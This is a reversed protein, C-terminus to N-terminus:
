KKAPHLEMVKEAILDAILDDDDSYTYGFLGSHSPDHEEPKHAACIKHDSIELVHAIVDKLNLVAFRANSAVGFGKASFAKCVEDLQARRPGSHAHELWNISLYRENQHSRLRFAVGSPTGDSRLSTPRCYRSIHHQDPIDFDFM